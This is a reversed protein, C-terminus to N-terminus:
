KQARDQRGLATGAFGFPRITGKPWSEIQRTYGNEGAVANHRAVEARGIVAPLPSGDPPDALPEVHQEDAKQKAQGALQLRLLELRAWAKVSPNAIPALVAQAQEMKNARACLEVIRHMQWPSQQADKVALSLKAAADLVPGAADKKGSEVAVAAVLVLADIQDVQPGGLAAIQWGGTIDGRLALGEAYALRSERTAGKGKAPAAVLSAPAKVGDSSLAMWLATLEPKAENPAKALADAAWDRKGMLFYEIGIRGVMSPYEEASCANRAVTLAIDPKEKEALKRAVLRFARQRLVRESHTTPPIKELAQRLMKQVRDWPLRRDEDIAKQDGSCAVVALSLEVIMAERDASSDTSMQLGGLAKDFHKAAADLEERSKAAHVFYELAYRHIAARYEPRKTGENKDEIEQIAQEMWKEQKRETRSRIFWIVAFAIVGLLALGYLLQKFRRIKRDRIDDEDEIEHAGAKRIAEGSVGRRQVEWAGQPAPESVKALSPRGANATRWDVPKDATPLPARTIKGCEDHRVNKGALTADVEFKEGCGSCVVTIKSVPAAAEPKAQTEEALAALALEEASKGIPATETGPGNASVTSRYPILIAQKCKLSKCKGTKGALEDKVRHLEGCHPCNFAIAM